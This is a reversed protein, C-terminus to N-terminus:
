TSSKDGPPSSDEDDAGYIIIRDDVHDEDGNHSFWPPPPEKSSWGWDELAGVLARRNNALSFSSYGYGYKILSRLVSPDPNIIMGNEAGFQKIHATAIVRTGDPLRVDCPADIKILLDMALAKWEKVEDFM